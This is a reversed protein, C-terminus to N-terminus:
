TRSEIHIYLLRAINTRGVDKSMKDKTYVPKYTFHLLTAYEYSVGTSSAHHM